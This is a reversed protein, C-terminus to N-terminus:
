IKFNTISVVITSEVSALYNCYVVTNGTPIKKYIKSNMNYSEHLNLLGMFDAFVTAIKCGYVCLKCTRGAYFEELVFEATHRAVGRALCRNYRDCCSGGIFQPSSMLCLLM